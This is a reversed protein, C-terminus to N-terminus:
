NGLHVQYRAGDSFSCTGAGQLPSQMQYECNMSTGSPGYASALGKREDSSMRTAEGTLNEGRYSIQFLGKGASVHTVTGTLMGTRQAAENAPYLRASLTSTAPRVVTPVAGPAVPYYATQGDPGVVPVVYCGGLGLSVSCCVVKAVRSGTSM